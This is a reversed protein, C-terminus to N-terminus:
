CWIIWIRCDRVGFYCSFIEVLLLLEGTYIRNILLNFEFLGDIVFFIGMEIEEVQSSFYYNSVKKEAESPSVADFASDSSKRCQEDSDLIKM